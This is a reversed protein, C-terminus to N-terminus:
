KQKKKMEEIFHSMSHYSGIVVGHPIAASRLIRSAPADGFVGGVESALTITNLVGSPNTGAGGWLDGSRVQDFSPSATNKFIAFGDGADLNPTVTTDAAFGRGFILANPSGNAMAITWFYGPVGNATADLDVPPTALLGTGGDLLNEAANPKAATTAVKFLGYNTGAYNATYNAILVFCDQGDASIALGHIDYHASNASILPIQTADLPASKYTFDNSRDNYDIVTVIEVKSDQGNITSGANQMGGVSGIFFYHGNYKWTDAEENYGVKVRVPNLGLANKAVTALPNGVKSIDGTATDVSFKVVSSNLYSSFSSTTASIFLAYLYADDMGEQPDEDEVVAIDVGGNAGAGAPQDGAFEYVPDGQPTTVTASFAYTTLDICYISATDFDIMYLHQTNKFRVTGYPNPVSLNPLGGRSLNFAGGGDAPDTATTVAAQLNGNPNLIWHKGTGAGPVAGSRNGLDVRVLGDDNVFANLRPDTMGSGLTAGVTVTPTNAGSGVVKGIKSSTTYDSTLAAYVVNYAAM